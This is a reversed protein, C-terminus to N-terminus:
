SSPRSIGICLMELNAKAKALINRNRKIQHIGLAAQLDTMNYKFGAEFWRTISTDTTPFVNGPTKPCATFPSRKLVPSPKKMKQSCWAAKVRSSIKKDCLLEPLRLRRLHRGKKGQVANRDCPGCDEIVTLDHKRAIAMIADMACPRGAFHVPVIARTRSTIKREIDDPDINMSQPEVDALVPTAGAHIIANVTACFTMASTIVEDGPGIGAALISLHLAATCSNVAAVHAAGKYERIGRRVPGVKPGTGIWGSQLTKVVEEIEANEILPAGFVLFGTKLDSQCM